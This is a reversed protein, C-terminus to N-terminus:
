YTAPRRTYEGGRMVLEREARQSAPIFRWPVRGGGDFIGLYTRGAPCQGAFITGARADLLILEGYSDLMYTGSACRYLNAAAYGGTDPTLHMTARMTQGSALTLERDYEALYAHSGQLAVVISVGDAAQFVAARAPIGAEFLIREGGVFVAVGLTLKAPLFVMAFAWRAVGRYRVALYLLRCSYGSVVIAVVCALAEVLSDAVFSPLGAAAPMFAASLATVWALLIVTGACAFTTNSPRTSPM